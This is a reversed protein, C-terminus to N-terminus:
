EAVALVDEMELILYKEESDTIETGSFKKYVIKEGTKIEDVAGIAVVEGMNPVTKNESGPLIIGSSTKEEMKLPKVLLRKGIPKINM